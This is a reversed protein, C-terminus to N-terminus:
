FGEKCVIGFFYEPDISIVTDVMKHSFNMINRTHLLLYDIKLGTGVLAM